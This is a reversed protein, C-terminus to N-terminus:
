ATAADTAPTGTSSTSNAGTWSLYYFQTGVQGFYAANGTTKDIFSNDAARSLTGDGNRQLHAKLYDNWDSTPIAKPSNATATADASSSTKSKPDWAAISVGHTPDSVSLTGANLADLMAKAQKAGDSTGAATATLNQKLLAMFSTTTIDTSATDSNDTSSTTATEDSQSNSLSNLMSALSAQASSPLSSVNKGVSSGDLLSSDSTGSGSSDSNTDGSTLVKLALQAAILRTSSLATVM